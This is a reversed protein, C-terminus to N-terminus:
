IWKIEVVNWQMRIDISIGDWEVKNREKWMMEGWEDESWIMWDLEM